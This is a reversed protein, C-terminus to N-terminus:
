LPAAVQEGANHRLVMPALPSIKETRSPFLHHGAAIVAKIEKGAQNYLAYNM